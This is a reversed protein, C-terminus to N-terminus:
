FREGSIVLGYSELDLKRYFCSFYGDHCAGGVQEVRFLLADGDCDLYIEKVKQINGSTEGKKWLKKRSTSFYHMIGTELTKRFAEENMFAVMLIEKSKFDQTIAIVLDEECNNVKRKRLNKWIETLRENWDM